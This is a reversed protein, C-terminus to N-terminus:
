GPLRHRFDEEIDFLFCQRPLRIDDAQPIKGFLHFIEGHIRLLIHNREGAAMETQRQQQTDGVLANLRQWLAFVGRRQTELQGIEGRAIVKDPDVFAVFHTLEPRLRQRKRGVPADRLTLEASLLGYLVHIFGLPFAFGREVIRHNIGRAILTVDVHQFDAIVINAVFRVAKDKVHGARGLFHLLKAADRTRLGPPAPGVRLQAVLHAKAGNGGHRPTNWFDILDAAHASCEAALALAGAARCVFSAFVM